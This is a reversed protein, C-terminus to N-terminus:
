RGMMNRKAEWQPTRPVSFQLLHMCKCLPEGHAELYLLGNDVTGQSKVRKEISWGGYGVGRSSQTVCFEVIDSKVYKIRKKASTHLTRAAGILRSFRM